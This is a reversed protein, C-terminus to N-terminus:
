VFCNSFNSKNTKGAMLVLKFDCSSNLSYVFRRCSAFKEILHFNFNYPFTHFCIREAMFYIQPLKMFPQLSFEILISSFSGAHSPQFPPQSHLVKRSLNEQFTEDSIGARNWVKRTSLGLQFAKSNRM